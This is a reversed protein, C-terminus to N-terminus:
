SREFDIVRSAVASSLFMGGCMGAFMLGLSELFSLSFAASWYEILVMGSLMGLNLIALRLFPRRSSEEAKHDRQREVLWMGFNCGLLMGLYTLPAISLKFEWVVWAASEFSKCLSQLAIFGVDGFDLRLGILLGLWGFLLMFVMMRLQHKLSANNAPFLIVSCVLVGAIILQHFLEIGTALFGSLLWAQALISFLLTIAMNSFPPM